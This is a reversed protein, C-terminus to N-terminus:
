VLVLVVVDHASMFMVWVLCTLVYALLLTLQMLMNSVVQCKEYELCCRHRHVGYM